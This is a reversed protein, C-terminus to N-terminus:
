KGKAKTEKIPEICDALEKAREDTLEVTKGVAMYEKTHKDVYNKTVKYKM